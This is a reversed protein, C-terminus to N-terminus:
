RQTARPDVEIIIKGQTGGNRNEEQAAGAEALPFIKDVNIHFKGAAALDSLWTLLQGETTSSSTACTVKAAQCEETSPMGSSSVMRGGPAMVQLGRIAYDAGVTEIYVDIDNVVDEFNVERYNIVQDVGISKLYDNHSPSATGIVEAAGLANVIQAASSGVGGAIGNIFVKDGPKFGAQDIIRYATMGVVGMGGAEAYTMSAPKPMVHDAPAIVYQSYGGNLGDVQVRGLMTFVPDGVKLNTVGPGVKAIVGAADRGPISRPPPQSDDNTAPAAGMGMYGGRVKWAFPNVSTAYVQILVQGAQPELVPVTELALVEPGGYGTQVIAQQQSPVDQAYAVLSALGAIALVGSQLLPKILKM